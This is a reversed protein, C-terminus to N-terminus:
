DRQLVWVAAPPLRWWLRQRRQWQLSSGPPLAFPVHLAPGAQVLRRAPHAEILACLAAVTASRVGAPLARMRLTSVVVTVPPLRPAEFDLIEHATGSRVEVSEWSDQLQEALAPEPEIVLMPVRPCRQRLAETLASRGAGLEIVCRSARAVQEAMAQALRSASPAASRRMPRRLAQTLFATANM